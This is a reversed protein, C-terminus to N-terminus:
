GEAFIMFYKAYLDRTRSEYKQNVATYDRYDPSGLLVAGNQLHLEVNDKLILTGIRYTGAPIEVVGGKNTYAKDIAQQIFRTELTKGDGKAGFTKINYQANGVSPLLWGILLCAAAHRVFKNLSVTM